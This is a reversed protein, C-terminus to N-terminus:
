LGEVHQVECVSVTYEGEMDPKLSPLYVRTYHESSEWARIAEMSDWLSVAFIADADNVDRALWRARFGAVNRGLEKYKAAHQEFTGPRLKVWTLRMFM